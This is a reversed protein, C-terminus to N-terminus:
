NGNMRDGDFDLSTVQGPLIEVTSTTRAGDIPNVLDVQYSGPALPLEGDDSTGIARGDVHVELEVESSVALSGPFIAESFQTRRGPRIRVQRQVQGIPSVFTLEHRGARLVLQAPTVGQQEGDVYLKIGSPTSTVDLQGVLPAPGPATRSATIDAALLRGITNTAMTQLGAPTWIAICTLLVLMLLLLLVRM